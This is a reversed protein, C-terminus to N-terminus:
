EDEEEPILYLTNNDVEDNEIISEMEAESKEVLTYNSLQEQLKDINNESAEIRAEHELATAIDQKGQERLVSVVNEMSSASGAAQAAIDKAKNATDIVEQNIVEQMKGQKYDRVGDASVVVGNATPAYLEGPTKVLNKGKM